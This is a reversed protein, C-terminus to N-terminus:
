GRHNGPQPTCRQTPDDAVVRLIRMGSLWRGQEIREHIILLGKRRDFAPHSIVWDPPIGWFSKRFLYSGFRWRVCCRDSFSLKLLRGWDLGAALNWFLEGIWCTEGWDLFRGPGSWICHGHLWRRL